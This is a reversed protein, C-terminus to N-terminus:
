CGSAAGSCGCNRTNNIGAGGKIDQAETPESDLDHITERHLAPRKAQPEKEETPIEDSDPKRVM